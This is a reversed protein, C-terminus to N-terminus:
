LTPLGPPLQQLLGQYAADYDTAGLLPQNPLIATQAVAQKRWLKWDTTHFAQDSLRLLSELTKL